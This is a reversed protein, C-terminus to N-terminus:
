LQTQAFARSSMNIHGQALSKAERMVMQLVFIIATSEIFALPLFARCVSTYATQRSYPQGSEGLVTVKMVWFTVLRSDLRSKEIGGFCMELIFTCKGLEHLNSYLRM